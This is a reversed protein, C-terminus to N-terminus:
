FISEGWKATWTVIGALWDVAMVQICGTLKVLWQREGLDIDFLELSDGAVLVQCRPQDCTGYHLWTCGLTAKYFPFRFQMVGPDLYM